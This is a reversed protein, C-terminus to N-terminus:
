YGLDLMQAERTLEDLIDHARQRESKSVVELVEALRIYLVTKEEEAERHSLTSCRDGALYADWVLDTIQQALETRGYM